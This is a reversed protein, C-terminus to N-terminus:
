NNVAKLVETNLDYSFSLNVVPVQPCSVADGRKVGYGGKKMMEM